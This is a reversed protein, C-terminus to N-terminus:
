YRSYAEGRALAERRRAGLQELLRLAELAAGARVRLAPPLPGRPVSALAPLQDALDGAGELADRTRRLWEELADLHDSWALVPVDPAPEGGTDPSM